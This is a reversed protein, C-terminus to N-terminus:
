PTREPHRRWLSGEPSDFVLEGPPQAPRAGVVVVFDADSSEWGAPRLRAQPLLAIGFRQLYGDRIPDRPETVVAVSAGAPIRAAANRLLVYGSAVAPGAASADFPTRPQRGLSAWPVTVASYAALLAAGLLSVSGRSLL